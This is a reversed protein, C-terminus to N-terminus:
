PDNSRAEKLAMTLASLVFHIMHYKDSPVGDLERQIVTEDIRDCEDLTKNEVVQALVSGCAITVGCGHCQFWAEQVRHKECAIQFAFFPGQGPVGSLGTGSPCSLKGRHYPELFHEMLTTSFRQSM